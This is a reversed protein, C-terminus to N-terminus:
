DTSADVDEFAVGPYIKYVNEGFTDGPDRM